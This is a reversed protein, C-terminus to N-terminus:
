QRDQGTPVGGALLRPLRQQCDNTAAALQGTQLLATRVETAAMRRRPGDRQISLLALARQRCLAGDLLRNAVPHRLRSLPQHPQALRFPADASENDTAFTRINKLNACLSRRFNPRKMRKGYNQLSFQLFSYKFLNIVVLVIFM